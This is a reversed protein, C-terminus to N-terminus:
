RFSLSFIRIICPILGSNRKTFASRRGYREYSRVKFRRKKVVDASSIKRHVPLSIM